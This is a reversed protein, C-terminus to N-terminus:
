NQSCVPGDYAKQGSFMPPALAILTTIDTLNITGDANLDWRKSYNTQGVLTNMRAIPSNFTDIDARNLRKDDNLDAPWRDDAEDNLTTTSACRQFPDTGISVEKGNTFGDGDSDVDKSVVDIPWIAFNNFEEIESVSCYSYSGRSDILMNGYYRGPNAPATYRLTLIGSQTSTLQSFFSSAKPSPNNCGSTYAVTGDWLDVWFNAALSNNSVIRYRVEITEGAVFKSTRTGNTRYTCASNSSGDCDAILLDPPANNAIVLTRTSCNNSENNEPIVSTPQDACFKIYYTGATNFTYISSDHNANEISNPGVPGHTSTQLSTNGSLIYGTIPSDNIYWRVDFTREVVGITRNSLYGKFRVTQGVKGYYKGVTSDYVLAPNTTAELSYINAVLDPKTCLPVKWAYGGVWNSWGGGNGARVRWNYDKRPGLNWFLGGLDYATPPSLGTWTYSFFRTGNEYAEIQATTANAVKFLTKINPAGNYNQSGGYSTDSCAPVNQAVEVKPPPPPSPVITSDCSAAQATKILPPGSDKASICPPLGLPPYYVHIDVFGGSPVTVQFYSEYASYILPTKLNNLWHYKQPDGAVGCNVQDSTCLTYKAQALLQNNPNLQIHVKHTGASLNSFNFSNSTTTPSGADLWVAMSAVGADMGSKVGKIAGPVSPTPTSGAMSSLTVGNITAPWGDTFQTWERGEGDTCAPWQSAITSGTQIMYIITDIQAYGDYIDRTPIGMERHVDEWTDPSFQFLGHYLGKSSVSKDNHGSECGSLGWLFKGFNDYGWNPIPVPTQQTGVLEILRAKIEEPSAAKAKYSFRQYTGIVTLPITLLLFFTLFISILDGTKYPPKIIQYYNSLLNGIM